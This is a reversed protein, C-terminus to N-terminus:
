KQTACAVSTVTGTPPIAGGREFIVIKGTAPAPCKATDEAIRWCPVNANGANCASMLKETQNAEGFNTIDSVTCDVPDTLKADFCPTGIIAKLQLAIQTLADSLDEKCITTQSNNRFSATFANLRVAADARQTTGGPANYTCAPDMKPIPPNMATDRGVSFPESPATINAVIINKDARAGKKAKVAAVLDAVKTEYASNDRVKCGTRPGPNRMNDVGDCIVGYESCRFSQLPGLSADTGLLAGGPKMSCDDEDAIYVIALFADPRLFGVNATSNLAAVTSALHQEFGCGSTGLSAMQRFVDILAGTYNKIRMGPNATDAIDSLFNVGGTFVVGGTKMIGNDGNGSCGGASGGNATGMDSSVIGIHVDPLGGPISNLVNIFNGFNATLSDQEEKMSGSNDIVFLLDVKRNVNVPIQKSEVKDQAPLVESVERDPCGTLSTLGGVSAAVVLCTSLLYNTKMMQRM